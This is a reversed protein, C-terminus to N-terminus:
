NGITIAGRFGLHKGRDKPSKGYRTESRCESAAYNWSGGRIVRDPYESEGIPDIVNEKSYAAFLDECWEWVNGHMDYLGWANPDYCGVPVTQGAFAGQVNTGWPFRGNCNAKDGNLANGWFYSTTSWARCAYEWQAETPLQVPLGLESCKKCFKQCDYRSVNEVPLDGGKFGSPNYGMVANWQQQTVETEMMWFGKTLTVLHPEEAGKRRAQSIPSGMMFTGAPCWRFAFQVGNVDVTKREGPKIGPSLLAAYKGQNSDAGLPNELPTLGDATCVACVCLLVVCALTMFGSYRCFLNILSNSPNM